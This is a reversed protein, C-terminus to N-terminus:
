TCVHGVVNKRWDAADYYGEPDDVDGPGEFAVQTGIKKHLTM